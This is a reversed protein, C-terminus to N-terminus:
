VDEVEEQQQMGVFVVDAYRHPLYTQIYYVEKPLYDQWYAKMEEGDKEVLRKYRELIPTEVWIKLDYYPALALCTSFSGEIVIIGQPAIHLWQQMTPETPDYRWYKAAKKKALPLIVQEKLRRWDLAADVTDEQQALPVIFDETSIITVNPLQQEIYTALTTKGAGSCGDIAIILPRSSDELQKLQQLIDM